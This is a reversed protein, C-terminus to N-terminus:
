ARCGAAVVSDPRARYISSSPVSRAEPRQRRDMLKNVIVLVVADVNSSQQKHQRPACAIIPSAGLLGVYMCLLALALETGGNARYLRIRPRAAVDKKEQVRNLLFRSFVLTKREECIKLVSDLTM